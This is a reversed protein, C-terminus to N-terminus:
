NSTPGDYLVACLTDGDSWKVGVFIKGTQVPQSVLAPDISGRPIPERDQLSAVQRQDLAISQTGQVEPYGVM